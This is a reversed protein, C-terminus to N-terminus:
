LKNPYVGVEVSNRRDRDKTDYELLIFGVAMWYGNGNRKGASTKRGCTKELSEERIWVDQARKVEVVHM